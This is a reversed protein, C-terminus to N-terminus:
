EDIKGSKLQSSSDSKPHIIRKPPRFIFFVSQRIM